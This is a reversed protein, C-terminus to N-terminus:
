WLGSLEVVTSSFGGAHPCRQQSCYVTGETSHYLNVMQGNISATVVTAGGGQSSSAEELETM